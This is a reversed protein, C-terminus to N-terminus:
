ALGAWWAAGVPLYLHAVEIAAPIRPQAPLLGRQLAFATRRDRHFLRGDSCVAARADLEGAAAVDAPRFDPSQPSGGSTAYDLVVGPGGPPRVAVVRLQLGPRRPAAPPPPQREAGEDDLGAGFLFPSRTRVARFSPSEDEFVLVEGPRLVRDTVSTPQGALRAVLRRMVAGHSTQPSVPEDAALLREFVCLHGGCPLVRHGAM